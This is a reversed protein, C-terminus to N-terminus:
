HRDNNKQTRDFLNPLQFGKNEEREAVVGYPANPAPTQYGPPPETLAQREPEGDFPLPKEETKNMWGTFGLNKPQIWGEKERLSTPQPAGTNLGAGSRRGTAVERPTLARTDNRDNVFTPLKAAAAAKKREEQDVDKPWAPNEALASQDRPPPLIDGSPPVVLPARERYDIPPPAPPVLGLTTFLQETFSTDEQAQAGGALLAMAFGTAAALALAPRRSALRTTDLRTIM